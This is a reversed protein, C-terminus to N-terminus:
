FGFKNYTARQIPDINGRGDFMGSPTGGPDHGAFWWNIGIGREGATFTPGGLAGLKGGTYDILTQAWQRHDDNTMNAGMEGIWVPAIHNKVLYGWIVNMQAVKKDGADPVYGGVDSPYDHVSYVLKHPITLNVPLRGALSLDGWPAPTNQDMFSWKANMPGECIILKTPDIALIANGVREYMYRINHTPNRDGEEWTSMGYGAPENWLDYGIVTKNGEYRRAVTQWDAVFRADTVTGRDGCGDTNDSAGGSDYWMGNRQQAFCPKWPGPGGAENSHDDLIVMLHHKAAAAIVQDLKALQDVARNSWDLRITNFGAEAIGSVKRVASEDYWMGVSLIRVAQNYSNIIQSGSTSLPSAEIDSSIGADSALSLTSLSTLVFLMCVFQIM